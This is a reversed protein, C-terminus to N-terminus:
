FRGLTEPARLTWVQARGGAPRLLWPRLLRPVLRSLAAAGGPHPPAPVGLAPSPLVHCSFTLAAQPSHRCTYGGFM